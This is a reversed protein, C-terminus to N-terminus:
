SACRSSTTWKRLAAITAATAPASYAVRVSSGHTAASAPVPVAIEPSLVQSIRSYTESLAPCVPCFRVYRSVIASMTSEVSPATTPPTTVHSRIGRSFSARLRPQRCATPPQRSSSSGTESAPPRPEAACAAIWRRSRLASPHRVDSELEEAVRGDEELQGAEPDQGVGEQAAPQARQPPVARDGSRVEDARDVDDEDRVGMRIMEVAPREPRQSAIRQHDDRAAEAACSPTEPAPDALDADALLDGQAVGDAHAPRAAHVTRVGRITCVALGRRPRHESHRSAV